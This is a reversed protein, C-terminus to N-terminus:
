IRPQILIRAAAKWTADESSSRRLRGRSCRWSVGEVGSTRALTPSTMCSLKPLGRWGAGRPGFALLWTTRQHGAGPRLPYRERPSRLDDKGAPCGFSFLSGRGAHFGQADFGGALAAGTHSRSWRCMVRDQVLGLRQFSGAAAAGVASGPYERTHGPRDLGNGALASASRFCREHTNHRDVVFHAGDLRNSLQGADGVFLPSEEMGVSDLRDPGM